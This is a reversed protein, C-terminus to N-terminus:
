HKIEAGSLRACTSAVTEPPEMFLFTALDVTERDEMAHLADEVVKLDVLEFGSVGSEKYGRIRGMLDDRDLKAQERYWNRDRGAMM